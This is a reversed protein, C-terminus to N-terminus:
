EQSKSQSGNFDDIKFLTVFLLTTFCQIDTIHKYPRLFALASRQMGVTNRIILYRDKNNRDYKHKPFVYKIECDIGRSCHSM